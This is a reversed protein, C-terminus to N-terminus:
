GNLLIIEWKENQYTVMFGVLEDLIMFGEKGPKVEFGVFLFDDADPTWGDIPFVSDWEEKSYEEYDM